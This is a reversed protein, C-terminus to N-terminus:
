LYGDFLKNIKRIEDESLDTIKPCKKEMEDIIRKNENNRLVFRQKINSESELCSILEQVENDGRISVCIERYEDESLLYDLLGRIYILKQDELKM